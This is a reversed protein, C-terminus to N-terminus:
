NAKINKIVAGAAKPDSTALQAYVKVYGRVQEGSNGLFEISARIGNVDPASAYGLEQQVLSLERNPTLIALHIKNMDMFYLRGSNALDGAAAVVNRDRMFPVGMFGTSGIGLQGSQNARNVFHANSLSSLDISEMLQKYKTFILRDTVGTFLGPRESLGYGNSQFFLEDLQYLINTSLETTTDIPPGGTGVDLAVARFNANGAVSRDIGAYTNGDDLMTQLGVLGNAVSGAFIDGALRDALDKAANQIETQLLNGLQGEQGQMQELARKNVAFKGIYTSWDLTPNTYTTGEDGSFTVDAGDAVPGAAHDSNLTGKVYIRDTAVAKKQLAQLVPNARNIYDELPERFIRNAVSSVAAYDIAM